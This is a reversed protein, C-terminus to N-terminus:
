IEDLWPHFTTYGPIPHAIPTWDPDNSRAGAAGSQIRFDKGNRLCPCAHDSGDPVHNAGPELESELQFRNVVPVTAGPNQLKPGNKQGRIEDQTPQM